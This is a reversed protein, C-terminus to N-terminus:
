SVSGAAKAMSGLHWLATRPASVLLRIFLDRIHVMYRPKVYPLRRTRVAAVVEDALAVAAFRSLDKSLAVMDRTPAGKM